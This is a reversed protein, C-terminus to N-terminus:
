HKELADWDFGNFFEHNKIDDLNKAGLREDKNCKLIKVILDEAADPILPHVFRRNTEAGECIQYFHKSNIEMDTFPTGKTFMEYIFIGYSWLDVLKNHGLKLAM